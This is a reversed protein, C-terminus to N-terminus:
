DRGALLEGAEGGHVSRCSEAESMSQANDRTFRLHGFIELAVIGDSRICCALLLQVAGVPIALPLRDTPRGCATRSLIPHM